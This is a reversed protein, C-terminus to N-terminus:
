RKTKVKQTSDISVIKGNQTKIEITQFANDKIIDVIKQSIKIKKKAEIFFIVGEKMKIQITEFDGSRIFYLLQLEEDTLEIGEKTPISIQNFSNNPFEQSIISELDIYIYPSLSSGQMKNLYISKPMLNIKGDLHVLLVMPAKVVSYMLAYEIPVFRKIKSHLLQEKVIKIKEIPFGFERLQTVISLWVANIRNYKKWKGEGENSIIGEKEWNNLVRSSQKTEIRSKLDVFNGRFFDTNVFNIVERRLDELYEFKAERELEDQIARMKVMNLM